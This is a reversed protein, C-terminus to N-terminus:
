KKMNLEKMLQTNKILYKQKLVQNMNEKKNYSRHIREEIFKAVFASNPKQYIEHPTGVQAIKGDKM